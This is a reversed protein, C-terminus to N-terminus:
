PQVAPQGADEVLTRLTGDLSLRVVAVRPGYRALLAGTVVDGALRHRWLAWSNDVRAFVLSRGDPALQLPGTGFADFAAIRRLGSGDARSQWVATTYTQSDFANGVSDRLHLLPGPTRRVFYLVRGDRSWAPMEGPAVASGLAGLRPAALVVTPAQGWNVMAAVVAGNPALVGEHWASPHQGLQGTRGTQTDTMDVSGACLTPTYVALHQATRWSFTMAVGGSGTERWHLQASPDPTGGGCGVAELFSWLPARRGHPDVSWLHDIDGLGTAAPTATAVYAVLDADAAWSPQFVATSTPSVLTRLVTGTRDLLLLDTALTTRHGRVLLLYRGDPSWAYTPYGFDGQGGQTTLPRTRGSATDLLFVNGHQTYVIRLGVAPAAAGPPSATAHRPLSGFVLALAL